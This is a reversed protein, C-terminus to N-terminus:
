VCGWWGDFLMVDIEADVGCISAVWAGDVRHGLPAEKKVTHSASRSSDGADIMEILMLCDLEVDIEIEIGIEIEIEIEVEIV